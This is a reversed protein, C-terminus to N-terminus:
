LPLSPVKLTHLQISSTITSAWFLFFSLWSFYTLTRAADTYSLSVGIVGVQMFVLPDSLWSRAHHLKVVLQDLLEMM